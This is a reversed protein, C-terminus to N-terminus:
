PVGSFTESRYDPTEDTIFEAAAASHGDEGGLLGASPPSPLYEGWAAEEGRLAFSRRQLPLSTDAGLPKKGESPSAGGGSPSIGHPRSFAGAAANCTM